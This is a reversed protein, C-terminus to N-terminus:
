VHFSDTVKPETKALTDAGRGAGGATPVTGLDKSGPFPACFKQTQPPFVGYVM